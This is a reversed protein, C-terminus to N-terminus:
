YKHPISLETVMSHMAWWAVPFAILIAIGALLVFDKTLVFVINSISAGLVKRVGIEKLRQQVSYTSLGLLGTCALLIAILSFVNMIKGLRLENDYLSIIIMMLFVTNLLGKPSFHNEM